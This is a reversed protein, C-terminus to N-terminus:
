KGALAADLAVLQSLMWEQYTKGPPETESVGVVPVGSSQALARMRKTLAEETQNNYFLVKVTRSSLDKEFAAIDAASPETDNMVALQFKPNRMKLGIAEAMYGFVPETATAQTGAYQAKLEAVKARLPALSRDFAAAGDAYAQAHAPDLKALDAALAKALAPGTEPLYWLHPNDGPKKGVLPAVEIVIRSNSPSASLLKAMWPDYDAGNYIVLQSDAIARATSASAEFEHPDQDPNTLFSTVALNAGGIQHAMDGYFNEAAVIKIPQAHAPAGAMTSFAAAAGILTAYILDRM